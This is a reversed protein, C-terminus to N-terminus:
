SASQGKTEAVQEPQAEPEVLSPAAPPAASIAPADPETASVTVEGGVLGKTEAKFIRM